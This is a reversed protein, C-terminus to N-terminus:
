GWGREFATKRFDHCECQNEGVAGTSAEGVDEGGPAESLLFKCNGDHVAAM